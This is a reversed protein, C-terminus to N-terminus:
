VAASAWSRDWVQRFLYEADDNELWLINKLHVKIDEWGHMGLSAAAKSAEAAFDNFEPTSYSAALGVSLLWIALSDHEFYTPDMFVKIQIKLQSVLSHQLRAHSFYTSGHVSLLYLALALRLSESISPSAGGPTMRSAAQDLLRHLAFCVLDHFVTTSLTVGGTDQFLIRLRCLMDYTAADLDLTQYLSSGNSQRSHTIDVWQSIPAIGDGNGYDDQTSFQPSMLAIM